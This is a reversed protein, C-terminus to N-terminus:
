NLFGLRGLEAYSDPGRYYKKPEMGKHFIEMQSNAVSIACELKGEYLVQESEDYHYQRYTQYVNSDDKSIRRISLRHNRILIKDFKHFSLDHSWQCFDTEGGNDFMYESIDQM